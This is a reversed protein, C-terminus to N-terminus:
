VPDDDVVRGRVVDGEGPAAGRPPGQWTGVRVSGRALRRAFVSTLLRRMPPRTLPLICAVGVVDTLFGPTLLLTGGILILAGDALERAPVRGAALASRLADFARRGERKVLITGLVSDAILLLITWWPGVTQGVQILLWIEALPVVVFAALLVWWVGRRRAM